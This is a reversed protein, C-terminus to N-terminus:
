GGKVEDFDILDARQHCQFDDEQYIDVTIFLHAENREKRRQQEVRRTPTLSPSPSPPFSSPPPPPASPPLPPPSDPSVHTLLFPLYPLSPTFCHTLSNYKYM